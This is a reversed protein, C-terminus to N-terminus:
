DAFSFYRQAEQLSSYPGFRKGGWEVFIVVSPDATTTTDLETTAETITM